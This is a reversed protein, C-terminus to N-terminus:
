YEPRQQIVQLLKSLVHRSVEETEKQGEDECQFVPLQHSAKIDAGTVRRSEHFNM